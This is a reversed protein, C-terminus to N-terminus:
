YFVRLLLETRLSADPTYALFFLASVLLFLFSLLLRLSLLRGYLGSYSFHLYSFFLRSIEKRGLLLRVVM